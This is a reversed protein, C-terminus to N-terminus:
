AARERSADRQRAMALGTDLADALDAAFYGEGPASGKLRVCVEDGCGTRRLTVGVPGLEDRVAALTLRNSAANIARLLRPGYAPSNRVQRVLPFWAGWDRYGSREDMEAWAAWGMGRLADIVARAAADDLAGPEPIAAVLRVRAAEMDRWMRLRAREAPSM